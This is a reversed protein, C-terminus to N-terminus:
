DRFIFVQGAREVTIHSGKEQNTSYTENRLVSLLQLIYTHFYM